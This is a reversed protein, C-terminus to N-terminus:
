ARKAYLTRAFDVPRDASLRIKRTYDGSLNTLINRDEQIIDQGVQPRLTRLLDFVWAPLGTQTFIVMATSEDTVPYISIYTRGPLDNKVWQPLDREVVPGQSNAAFFGPFRITVPRTRKIPLGDNGTDLYTTFEFSCIDGSTQFNHLRSSDATLSKSHTGPVHNLDFLNEMVFRFPAAYAIEMHASIKQFDLVPIEPHVSCHHIWLIGQSNVLRWPAPRDSRRLDFGTQADKYIQFAQNHFRIQNTGADFNAEHGLCFLEKELIM